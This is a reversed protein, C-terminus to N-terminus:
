PSKNYPFHALSRRVAAQFVTCYALNVCIMCLKWIYIITDTEKTRFERLFFVALIM